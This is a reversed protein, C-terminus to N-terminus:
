IGLGVATLLEAFPARPRLADLRPEVKLWTLSVDRDQHAHELLEIAREHAGLGAHAVALWYPSVYRVQACEELERLAARAEDGQDAVAYAHALAALIAPQDGACTRANRLEVTAEEALGMQAYALGLIHQAAGFKPEMALVKWAQESASQFDRAMYLGWAAMVNVMASLPDLEEAQRLERLADESRGMAALHTGYSMHIMAAGSSLLLATVYEGEAGAWDWEFLRKVNALAAHAEGLDPQSNVAHMAMEKARPYIESAPAMNLMAFYGYADALGAYAFACEPDRSLAANFHAVGRHLDEETLKHCFYRGKLCDQRAEAVAPSVPVLEIGSPSSGATAPAGGMEEVPVIFRYGLGTRTEIFRPTRSTDGLARRLANVATNLSRDFSVHLGPWLQNAMEDRMVLQGPRQLLLELIRFPKRQLKIRLGHKRLEKNTFDVEFVGFRVKPSFSMTKPAPFSM